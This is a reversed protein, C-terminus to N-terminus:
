DEEAEMQQEKAVDPDEMKANAASEQDVILPHSLIKNVLEETLKTSQFKIPDQNPLELTKWAGGSKIVGKEEMLDLFGSYKNMGTTYPVEIETKTGVQAFRSKYTEVKMRVGIVGTADKLKAPTVLLIQSASYRIANNVIWLGQGNTIDANPYVQHTVLAAINNRKIRSVITRLLKKQQKRAQGQDGKQVGKEFDENETDTLLMDLSDLAIVVQPSDPNDRGYTKEYMTVFESIVTVVDSMTTVGAYQFREESTDIGIKSMYDLDLAHESDLVLLFAGQDQANKLVNCLLFSKGSNHSSIGNGAWYRHNEHDVEFDYVVSRELKNKEIVPQIGSKTNLFTGIKCSEANTWLIEGHADTNSFQLLHDASCRTEHNLTKIQYIDREKKEYVKSITQFGDPTDVLITTKVDKLSQIEVEESYDKVHNEFALRLNKSAELSFGNKSFESVSKTSYGIKKAIEENSYFHQLEKFIDKDSLLEYM